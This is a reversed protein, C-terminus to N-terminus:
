AGGWGEGGRVGKGERAAEGWGGPLNGRVIFYGGIPYGNSDITRRDGNLM